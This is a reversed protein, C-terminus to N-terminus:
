PLQRLPLRLPLRLLRSSDSSLRRYGGLTPALRRVWPTLKASATVTRSSSNAGTLIRLGYTFLAEYVKPNLSWSFRSTTTYM